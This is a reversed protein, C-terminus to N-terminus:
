GTKMKLTGTIDNIKNKWFISINHKVDDIDIVQDNRKFIIQSFTELGRLAGWVTNANLNISSADVTLDDSIIFL